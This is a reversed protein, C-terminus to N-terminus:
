GSVAMRLYNGKGIYLYVDGGYCGSYSCNSIDDYAYRIASSYGQFDSGRERCGQCEYQKVIKYHGRGHENVEDMIANFIKVPYKKQIHRLIRKDKLTQLRVSAEYERQDEEMWSIVAQKGEVECAKHFLGFNNSVEVENNEFEEGCYACKFTFNEKRSKFM